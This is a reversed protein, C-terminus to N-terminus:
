KPVKPFFGKLHNKWKKLWSLPNPVCKGMKLNKPQGPPVPNVKKPVKGNPGKKPVWFLFNQPVEKKSKNLEWSNQGQIAKKFNHPKPKVV